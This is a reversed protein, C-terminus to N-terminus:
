LSRFRVADRAVFRMDLEQRVAPDFRVKPDVELVYSQLFGKQPGLAGSGPRILAINPVRDAPLDLKQAEQSAYVHYEAPRQLTVFGPAGRSELSRVFM